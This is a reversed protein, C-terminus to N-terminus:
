GFLFSVGGNLFVDNKGGVITYVDRAELRLAVDKNFFFQVGAAGNINGETNADNGNPNMSLIGPGALVYPELCCYPFFHYVVDVAFLRGNVEKGHDIPLRSDTTFFGLLAEIGWHKTFDYGLSGYPVGTNDIHRKSDFRYYGDGLAFTIAGARNGAFSVSYSTMTFLSVLVLWYWKKM